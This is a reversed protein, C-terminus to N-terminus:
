LFQTKQKKPVVLNRWESPNASLGATINTPFFTGGREIRKLSVAQLLGLTFSRLSDFPVVTVDTQFAWCWCISFHQQIEPTDRDSDRSLSFFGHFIRLFSRPLSIVSIHQVNSNFTTSVFYDYDISELQIMFDLDNHYQHQAVINRGSWDLEPVNQYILIYIWQYGINQNQIKVIKVHAVAHSSSRCSGREQGLNRPRRRNSVRRRKPGNRAPRLDIALGILLMGALSERGDSFAGLQQQELRLIRLGKIM